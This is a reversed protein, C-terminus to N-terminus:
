VDMWEDIVCCGNGNEGSHIHTYAHTSHRTEHSITRFSQHLTTPKHKPSTGSFCGYTGTRSVGAHSAVFAVSSSNFKRLMLMSSACRCSFGGLSLYLRTNNTSRNCPTPTSIGHFINIVALATLLDYIRVDVQRVDLTIYSVQFIVNFM